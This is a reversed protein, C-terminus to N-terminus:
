SPMSEKSPPEHCVKSQGRPSTSRVPLRTATMPVPAVAMWTTPSMASLTPSRVTKWRRGM